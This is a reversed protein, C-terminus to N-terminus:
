PLFGKKRNWASIRLTRVWMKMAWIGRTPVLAGKEPGLFENKTYCGSVSREQDNETRRTVLHAGPM